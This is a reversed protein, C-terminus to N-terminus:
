RYYYFLTVHQRFPARLLTLEDVPVATTSAKCEEDFTHRVM